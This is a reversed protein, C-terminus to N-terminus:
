PWIGAGHMIRKVARHIPREMHRPLREEDIVFRGDGKDVQCDEVRALMSRWNEENAHDWGKFGRARAARRTDLRMQIQQPSRYPYHRFRIREPAVLGLHQPWGKDIDWVLGDRYRFFRIESHFVKYHRMRPLIERFPRNFDLTELEHDTIYYEINTGWVVHYAPDIQALFAPPDDAYFEDVNLQCWWDGHKTNQRFAHFVEARLSEEFPKGDQKWPIIRPNHKALDLVVDWTEDTSEGDYVYIYDSWKSAEELCYGIVDAENKCVAISHIKFDKSV